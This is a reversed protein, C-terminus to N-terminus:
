NCNALPLKLGLFSVLLPLLKDLFCLLVNSVEIMQIIQAGLLYWIYICVTDHFFMNENFIFHLRSSPFICEKNNYHLVLNFKWSGGLTWTLLIQFMILWRHQAPVISALWLKFTTLVYSMKWSQSKSHRAPFISNRCNALM